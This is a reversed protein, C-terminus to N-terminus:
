VFFIKNFFLMSYILSLIMGFSSLFVVSNSLLFCGLVILFEGVFNITGPFGFNSLIFFFYSTASVPMLTALGGYYLLLRTKYREYISGIGFFLSASTLAHGYMSFFAGSLSVLSFSFFGLLSFNMHSVSSYAIIKKADLQNLAVLSPFFFGFFSFFLIYFIFDLSIALLSSVLFRLIAYTGLKLLISALIVSGPTPAEV